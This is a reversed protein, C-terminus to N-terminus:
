MVGCIRPPLLSSSIGCSIMICIPRRPSKGSAEASAMMRIATTVM